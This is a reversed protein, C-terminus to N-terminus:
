LSCPGVHSQMFQEYRRLAKLGSPAKGDCTEWMHCNTCGKTNREPWTCSSDEVIEHEKGLCRLSHMKCVTLLVSKRRAATSACVELSPSPVFIMTPSSVLFITIQCGILILSAFLSGASLLYRAFVTEEQLSRGRNVNCWPFHRHNQHSSQPFCIFSEEVNSLSNDLIHQINRMIYFQGTSCRIDAPDPSFNLSPDCTVTAEGQLQRGPPCSLTVHAGIDYTDKIPSAIVGDALADLKCASAPLFSSLTM